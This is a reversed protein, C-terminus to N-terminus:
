LRPVELGVRDEFERESDDVRGRVFWENWLVRVNAERIGFGGSSRQLRHRDLALTFCFEIQYAHRKTSIRLSLLPRVIKHQDNHHSAICFDEDM